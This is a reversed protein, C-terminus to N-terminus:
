DPAKIEDSIECVPIPEMKHRNARNLKLYIQMVEQERGSFDQPTRGAEQQTMAWELEDYNAGLQQEDTRSDGFLGDTPQANQISEPVELFAALAFVESKVLDAIPSLDVGGDGYKTYFGVGFDEVKNGTGAM